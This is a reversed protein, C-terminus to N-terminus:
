PAVPTAGNRRGTIHPLGDRESPHNQSRGLKAVTQLIVSCDNWVSASAAYEINISLKAPMINQVYGAEPEPMRALVDAEDSFQISAPDTMGPVLQLVRRQERTYRAVYRRVEPRPGVLSMEGALVNFLQPLEDLKTRRLWAGVRTIRPDHRVTLQIGVRDAGPVMTRFKWIRFPRGRYGIREQRFFV